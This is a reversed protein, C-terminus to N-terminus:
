LGLAQRGSGAITVVAGLAQLLAALTQAADTNDDVVLIRRPPLPRPPETADESVVSKAVTPLEVLFESGRGPGDSRAKVTGGHLEVLTKVITLGIGLGGQAHRN